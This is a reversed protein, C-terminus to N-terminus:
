SARRRRKLTLLAGLSLLGMAAPEPVQTLSLDDFYATGPTAGGHAWWNLGGISPSGPNDIDWIGSHFPTGGYSIDLTNSDLDIVAEVKTWQDFVLTTSDIGNKFVAAGAANDVEMLSGLEFTTPMAGQSQYLSVKGDYTNPVYVQFSLNWVGSTIPAGDLNEIYVDSGYAGDTTTSLALSQTGSFAQATSVDSTLVGGFDVWPGQLHINGVTYSEFDIMVAAHASGAALALAALTM